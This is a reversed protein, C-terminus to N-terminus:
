ARASRRLGKNERMAERAFRPLWPGRCLAVGPGWVKFLRVRSFSDSCAEQFLPRHRAEDTGSKNRRKKLRALARARGMWCEDEGWLLSNLVRSIWLHGTSNLWSFVRQPSDEVRGMWHQDGGRRILRAVQAPYTPFFKVVLARLDGLNPLFPKDSRPLSSQQVSIQGKHARYEHGSGVSRQAHLSKGDCTAASGAPRM